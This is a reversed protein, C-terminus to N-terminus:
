VEELVSTGKTKDGSTWQWTEHLKIKGSSTTEPKSVCIGTMLEGKTNIQHYRMNITGDDSVLGMLHGEVINGGKYTSTLISGEQKYIFVTESTTESNGSSSLPRFKKNNYNIL